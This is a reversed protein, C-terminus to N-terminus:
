CRRRSVFGGGSVIVNSNTLPTGDYEKSDTASTLTVNRKNVTLLGDITAINGYSSTVDVGANTIKYSVIANTQTGVNTISGEVVAKLVDKGMLKGTVTYTAKTLPTGDYKKSGDDATIKIEAKYQEVTLLGEEMSIKYNAANTNSYLTYGFKNKSSGAALQSGTVTYDAGKELSLAM